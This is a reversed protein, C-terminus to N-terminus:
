IFNKRKLFDYVTDIGHQDTGVVQKNREQYKKTYTRVVKTRSGLLGVENEEFNLDKNGIHTLRHSVELNLNNYRVYPLRYGSDRTIGLIAPQDIEYLYVATEDEVEIRASSTTFREEEIRSIFSMQNIGLLSAIQSPVHTTDGDIAHSGTLITDFTANSLYRSLVKSTAYTDSGVYLKDTIITAVDVGVRLIDELQPIISEPAMTVVEIFTTPDKKKMMLAFGIACADDPNIMMRSNERIIIHKEHDYNFNDVDPVFKVACIIKM